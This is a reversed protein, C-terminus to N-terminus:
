QRNEPKPPTPAEPDEAPEAPPDPRTIVGSILGAKDGGSWSGAYTNDHIMVRASYRNMGPLGFNEVILVPTDGAWEITLPVPLVLNPTDPSLRARIIWRNGEIKTAGAISYRDKREDGVKGEAIPHWRGVFLVEDLTAILKQELENLDPETEDAAQARADPAPFLFAISLLCAFWPKTALPLRDLPNSNM